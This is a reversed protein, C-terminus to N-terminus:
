NKGTIVTHLLEGAVKKRIVNFISAAVKGISMRIIIKSYINVVYYMSVVYKIGHYSTSSFSCSTTTTKIKAQIPQKLKLCCCYRSFSLKTMSIATAM